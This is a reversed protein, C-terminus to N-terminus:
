KWDIEYGPPLAYQTRCGPCQLVYFEGGESVDDCNGDWGTVPILKAAVDIALDMSNHTVEYGLEVLDSSCM